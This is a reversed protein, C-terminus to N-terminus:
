ALAYNAELIRERPIVGMKKAVKRRGVVQSALSTLLGHADNIDALVRNYQRRLDNGYNPHCRFCDHVTVVEFPNDPLSTILEAIAVQNVHGMNFEDLYDLIRVSLFGTEEYLQWLKLVMRDQDRDTDSGFGEGKMILGAIKTTVEPDFMCRRLMERVIMGDISHILNPGLGKHFKPRGPKKQKVTYNQGFLTFETIEHDTTEIMANFGDPVVWSYTDGKIENWLDQLGINLDWAGPAMKEMTEYFLEINEGFTREPIWTSGYLSTMIANKVEKRTIAGHLNMGGYIEVYSDVCRDPNGGCLDFSKPCSVLLSLIQLGSSCADLSIMYGSEEGEDYARLAELAARLGIPNSAHRYLKPDSLDLKEFEALRNDWTEKEYAKDYKCVIEARLYEIGTLQQFM